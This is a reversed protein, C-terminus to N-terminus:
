DTLCASRSCCDKVLYASLNKVAELDASYIVQRGCKRSSVIGALRLEKLHFSLTPCPLALEAALDGAPLGPEGAAVLHRFIDLRTEHALAALAALVRDKSLTEM